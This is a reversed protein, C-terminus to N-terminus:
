KVYSLLDFAQDLLQKSNEHTLKKRTDQYTDWSADLVEYQDLVFDRKRKSDVKGLYFYASKEVVEGHFDRFQYRILLPTHQTLIECDTIWTEERLERIATEIDTEAWEKHGKPFGRYKEKQYITFFEYEGNENIIFPIIGYSVDKKM